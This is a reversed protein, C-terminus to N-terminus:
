RVLSEKNHQVLAGLRHQLYRNSIDPTSNDHSWIGNVKKAKRNKIESNIDKAAVGGGDLRRNNWVPCYKKFFFVRNCKDAEWMFIDDDFLSAPDNFISFSTSCSSFSSSTGFRYCLKEASSQFLNTTGQPTSWYLMACLFCQPKEGLHGPNSDRYPAHGIKM